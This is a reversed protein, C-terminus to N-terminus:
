EPQQPPCVAIGEIDNYKSVETGDGKECTDPNIITVFQVGNDHYGILLDGNEDVELAEIESAKFDCVNWDVGTGPVYKGIRHPKSADNSAPNSGSHDNYPFYLVEGANDWTLDEVEFNPDNPVIVPCGPEKVKVLGDKESWGWLENTVPNVSIGDLGNCDTRPEEVLDGNTMDIKYLMGPDQGHDSAAGYMVGNLDIELGEIDYGDRSPGIPEVGTSPHYRVIQSDNLGADHVAYIYECVKPPEISCDPGMVEGTRENGPEGAKAQALIATEPYDADLTITFTWETSDEDVNWKMGEFTTSGDKVDGTPSSSVVAGKDMCAKIGLNWHSLDKGDLEKVSYVWDLGEHSLLGICYESGEGLTITTLDCDGNSSQEGDGNDQSDGDSGGDSSGSQDDGNDQSDGDSGGDSSGGQDDGSEQNDGDQNDGNEETPPTTDCESPIILQAPNAKKGTSSTRNQRIQIHTEMDYTTGPVVSFAAEYGRLSEGEVGDPSVWSFESFLVASSAVDYLKVWANGDRHPWQGEVAMVLVYATKNSCDYRMYLNSLLDKSSNGAEHMEAVFDAQGWESDNGDIDATGSVPVIEIPPATETPSPKGKGAANPVFALGLVSVTLAIPTIFSRIKKNM